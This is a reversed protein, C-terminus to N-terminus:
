RPSVAREHAMAAGRQEEVWQNADAVDAWAKRGKAIMAEFSWSCITADVDVFPNLRGVSISSPTVPMGDVVDGLVLELQQQAMDIRNTMDVQM